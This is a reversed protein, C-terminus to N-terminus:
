AYPAPLACSSTKGIFPDHKQFAHGLLRGARRSLIIPAYHRRSLESKEKGTLLVPGPHSKRAQVHPFTQTRFTTAGDRLAGSLLRRTGYHHLCHFLGASM